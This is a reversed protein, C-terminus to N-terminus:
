EPSIKVPMMPVSRAAVAMAPTTPVPRPPNIPASSCFSELRVTLRRSLKAPPTISLTTQRSRIVSAIAVVTPTKVTMAATANPTTGHIQAGRRVMETSRIAVVKVFGDMSM